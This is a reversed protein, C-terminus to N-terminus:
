ESSSPCRAPMQQPKYALAEDVIKEADDYKGLVDIAEPHSVSNLFEAILDDIEEESGDLDVIRQVIRILHNRDAV